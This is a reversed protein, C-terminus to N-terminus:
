SWEIDFADLMNWFMEHKCPDKEAGPGTFYFATIEIDGDNTIFAFHIDLRFELAPDKIEIRGMRDETPLVIPDILELDVSAGSPLGVTLTEGVKLEKQHEFILDTYADRFDEVNDPYMCDYLGDGALNLDSM